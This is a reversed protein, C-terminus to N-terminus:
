LVLDEISNRRSRCESLKLSHDFLDLPSRNGQFVRVACAEVSIIRRDRCIIYQLKRYISIHCVAHPQSHGAVHVAASVSRDTLIIDRCHLSM